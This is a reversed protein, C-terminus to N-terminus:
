VLYHDLGEPGYAAQSASVAEVKFLFTEILVSVKLIRTKVVSLYLRLLFTM